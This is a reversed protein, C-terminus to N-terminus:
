SLVLGRLLLAGYEDITYLDGGKASLIESAAARVVRDLAAETLGIKQAKATGTPVHMLYNRLLLLTHCGSRAMFKAQAVEDASAASRFVKATQSLKGGSSAAAAQELEAVILAIVPIAVFEAVTRPPRVAARPVSVGISNEALTQLVTDTLSAHLDEDFHRWRENVTALTQLVRPVLPQGQGRSVISLWGDQTVWRQLLRGYPPLLKRAAPPAQLLQQGVQGREAEGGPGGAVVREECLVSAFRALLAGKPMVGHEALERLEKLESPLMRELATAADGRSETELKDLIQALEEQLVQEGSGGSKTADRCLTGALFALLAPRPSTLGAHAEFALSDVLLQPTVHARVEPPWSPAYVSHLRQAMALALAPAPEQGVRLHEAASWLMFGNVRADAVAKLLAVMGSGTAVTGACTHTVNLVDKFLQVFRAAEFESSAVIPAGLEDLLIWLKNGAHHIGEALAQAAGPLQDSAKGAPRPLDIGQARAFALLSALLTEAAAEAPAGLAFTHFFIVPRRHGAAARAYYLSLLRPIITTLMRTKGSKITGTVMLMHPTDFPPRRQLFYELTSLQAPTLFFPHPAAFGPSGQLNAVVVREGGLVEESIHLPPPLPPPPPPLVEILVSTGERVGQEALARRSDLPMPDGGGEVERLLRVRDPATDLRLEAIVAKTLDYADAGRAFAVKSHSLSGGRRVLVYPLAPPPPPLPPPPPPLVEILVSTGERVGQEALARRSDLPVPAGGGSEERLLRVRGPAADLRLEAIIAKKLDDVDAGRAFAVKSHSLSGGRRVLVYHLDPPPPPLPPPPPPLLVEILVSSGERVGQETLARRSDLPVPAGGGSEERLLRVRGPAADLRLEAIVAKKLDSVDAGDTVAVKCFEDLNATARAFVHLGRAAAGGGCLRLAEPAYAALLPLAAHALPARQALRFLLSAPGRLM